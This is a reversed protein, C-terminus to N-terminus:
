QAMRLRGNVLDKKLWVGPKIDIEVLGSSHVATVKCPIWKGHSPSNYELSDGVSFLTSRSGSISDPRREGVLARQFEEFSVSGDDNADMDAILENLGRGGIVASLAPRKVLDILEDRDLCGDGNKDLFEFEQSLLDGMWAKGAVLMHGMFEKYTVSGDDRMMASITDEVKEPPMAESLKQRAEEESIVGNHDADMASFAANLQTLQALNQSEVGM